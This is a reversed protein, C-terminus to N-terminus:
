IFMMKCSNMKIKYTTDLVPWSLCYESMDLKIVLSAGVYAWIFVCLLYMFLRDMSCLRIMYAAFLIFGVTVCCRRSGPHTEKLPYSIVPLNFSALSCVLSGIKLIYALVPFFM